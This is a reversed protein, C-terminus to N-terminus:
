SVVRGLIWGYNIWQLMVDGQVKRHDSIYVRRVVNSGCAEAGGTYNICESEVLHPRYSCKTTEVTSMRLVHGWGWAAAWIMCPYVLWSAVRGKTHVTGYADRSGYYFQLQRDINDSSKHWVAIAFWPCNQTCFQGRWSVRNTLLQWSAHKDCDGEQGNQYCRIYFDSGTDIFTSLLARWFKIEILQQHLAEQLFIIPVSLKM